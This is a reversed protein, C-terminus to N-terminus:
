EDYISQTPAAWVRDPSDRLGLEEASVRVRSIMIANNYTWIAFYGDGLPADDTKAFVQTGDLAMSLINGKRSVKVHHWKRHLSPRDILRSTNEAWSKSRRYLCTKTNDFGGFIFSYGSTLDQGDTCVYINM